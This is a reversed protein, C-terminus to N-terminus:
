FASPKMRDNDDFEFFAKAASSQNPITIMCDRVAARSGEVGHILEADEFTPHTASNCRAACAACFAGACNDAAGGPKPESERLAGRPSGCNSPVSGPVARTALASRSPRHGIGKM